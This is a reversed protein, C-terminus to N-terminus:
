AIGGTVLGTVFVGRLKEPGGVAMSRAVLVDHLQRPLKFSSEHVYKQGM